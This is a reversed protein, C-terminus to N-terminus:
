VVFHKERHHRLYTQQDASPTRRLRAGAPIGLVTEPSSGLEGSFMMAGGGDFSVLGADFAADLTAVLLLGNDADLRERNDSLRWPKIHSARLLARIDVGTVACASAWATEVDGRFRGQGLRSKILAERETSSLGNLEGRKEASSIDADANSRALNEAAIAGVHVLLARLADVDEVGVHCARRTPKAGGVMQKPFAKYNSSHVFVKPSVTVGSVAGSTLSDAFDPLVAVPFKALSNSVYLDTRGRELGYGTVKDLDAQSSLGFEHRLLDHIEDRPLSM